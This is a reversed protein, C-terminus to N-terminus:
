GDGCAGDGVNFSKSEDNVGLEMAPLVFFLLRATVAGDNRWGHRAGCIIGADGTRFVAEGRDLVMVIEGDIVYFHDITDTAHLSPDIQGVGPMYEVMTMAYTEARTQAMTWSPFGGGTMSLCHDARAIPALWLNTLRVTREPDAEPVAEDLAVRSKGHADPAVVIRRPGTM